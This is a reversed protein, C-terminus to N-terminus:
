AKKVLLVLVGAAIGGIIIFSLLLIFLMRLQYSAQFRDLITVQRVEYISEVDHVQAHPPIMYEGGKEYLNHNIYAPPPLAPPSLISQPIAPPAVTSTTSTATRPARMSNARTRSAAQELDLHLSEISLRPLSPPLENSSESWVVNTTSNTSSTTSSGSSATTTMTMTTTKKIKLSHASNGFPNPYIQM